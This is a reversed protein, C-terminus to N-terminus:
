VLLFLNITDLAIDPADEVRLEDVGLRSDELLLLAEAGAQRTAGVLEQHIALQVGGRGGGDEGEDREVKRAIPADEVADIAVVGREDEEVTEGELVVVRHDERLGARAFAVRRLKLYQAGQHKARVDNDYVGRAFLVLKHLRGAAAGEMNRERGLM